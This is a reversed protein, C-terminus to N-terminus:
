SHGLEADTEGRHLSQLQQIFHVATTKYRLELLETALFLEKKQSIVGHLGNFTVAKV